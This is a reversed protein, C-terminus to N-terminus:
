SGAPMAFRPYAKLMIEENREMAPLNERYRISDELQKLTYNSETNTKNNLYNILYDDRNSFALHDGDATRVPELGGDERRVYAAHIVLQDSSPIPVLVVRKAKGKAIQENYFNLAIKKVDLKEAISQNIFTQATIAVGALALDSLNAIRSVFTADKEFILHPSIKSLEQQVHGIFKQELGPIKGYTSAISNRSRNVNQNGADIVLGETDKYAEKYRNKIKDKIDTIDMGSLYLHKVYPIFDEIAQGDKGLDDNIDKLFSKVNSYEYTDLFVDFRANFDKTNIKNANLIFELAKENGETKTIGIATKFISYTEANLVDDLLDHSQSSDPHVRNMLTNVLATVGAAQEPEINAVGRSVNNFFTEVETPIVNLEMSAVLGAFLRPNDQMLNPNSLNEALTFKASTDQIDIAFPESSKLPLYPDIFISQATRKDVTSNTSSGSIIRNKNEIFKLRASEATESQKLRSNISTITPKLEAPLIGRSQIDELIEKVKPMNNLANDNGELFALTNLTENSNKFGIQGLAEQSIILTLRRKLANIRDFEVKSYNGKPDNLKDILTNYNKENEEYTNLSLSKKFQEEEAFAAKTQILKEKIAAQSYQGTKDSFIGAFGAISIKNRNIFNVINQGQPTLNNFKGMDGQLLLKIDVINLNENVETAILEFISQKAISNKITEKNAEIIKLKTQINADKNLRNQSILLNAERDLQRLNTEIKGNKSLDITKDAFEFEINNITSIQKAEFDYVTSVVEAAQKAQSQVNLAEINKGINTGISSLINRDGGTIAILDTLIKKADQNKTSNLSNYDGTTLAISLANRQEDGGILPIITNNRLMEQAEYVGYTTLYNNEFEEASGVPIIGSAEADEMTNILEEAQTNVNDLAQQKNFNIFNNYFEKNLFNNAQEQINLALEQNNKEIANAQINLETARTIAVGGVKVTEKWKGQANEHMDAVYRSMEERFLEPQFKYKLQLEAAKSKLENEISAGFRKEVVRKYADRAIIGGSFMKPDLAKPKGSEADFAIIESQEVAMAADLGSQEAQKAGEKLAIQNLQSATNAVSEWMEDEGTEFRTVGIPRNMYSRKQKTVAM